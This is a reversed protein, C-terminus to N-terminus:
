HIFHVAQGGAGVLLLSSVSSGKFYQLVEGAWYRIKANIIQRFATMDPHM